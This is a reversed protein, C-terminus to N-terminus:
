NGGIGARVPKRISGPSFDIGQLGGRTQDYYVPVITEAAGPPDWGTTPIYSYVKSPKDPTDAGFDPRNPAFGYNSNATAYRGASGDYFVQVSASDELGFYQGFQGTYRDYEDFMHVKLSPHAIENMLRNGLVGPVRPMIWRSNNAAREVTVPPEDGGGFSGIDNSYHSPGSMYSSSFPWRWTSRFKTATTPPVFRAGQPNELYKDMNDHWYNRPRDGASTFKESPMSEGMFHMLVLHNYLPFPTHGTPATSVSPTIQDFDSNRSVLDLQQFTAVRNWATFDAPNLLSCAIALETNPTDPVEGPKWSFTFLRDDHSEAYMASAQAIQRLDAIDARVASQDRSYGLTGIGLSLLVGVVSVAAILDVLAFARESKM